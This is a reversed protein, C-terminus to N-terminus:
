KTITFADVPLAIVVTAQPFRAGGVGYAGLEVISVRTLMAANCSLLLPLGHNAQKKM